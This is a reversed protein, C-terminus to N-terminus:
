SDYCKQGAICIVGNCISRYKLIRYLFLPLAFVFKCPKSSLSYPKQSSEKCVQESQSEMQKLQQRLAMSVAGQHAPRWPLVTWRQSRQCLRM